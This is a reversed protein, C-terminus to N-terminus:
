ASSDLFKEKGKQPLTGQTLRDIQSEPNFDRALSTLAAANRAAKTKESRSSRALSLAKEIIEQQEDSVFFVLPNAFSGKDPNAPAKPAKLNGLREIQSASQPLLKALERAEISGNLKKLLALKKDLVNRGGLSNFTALLIDAEIDDVDWVVADVMRYELERLAECRSRGHIIQFLSQGCPSPRVVLPEYLGTRQINRVLKTLKARSMRNPNDPHAVLKEIPISVIRSKAKPKVM